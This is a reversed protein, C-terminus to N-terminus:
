NRQCSGSTACLWNLIKLCLIDPKFASDEKKQVLQRVLALSGLQTLVPPNMGKGLANTSLSIPNSSPNGAVSFPGGWHSSLIFKQQVSHNKMM